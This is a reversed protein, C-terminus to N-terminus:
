VLAAKIALTSPIRASSERDEASLSLGNMVGVAMETMDGADNEAQICLIRLPRTPEIGFAPRGSGLPCRTAGLGFEASVPPAIFLM